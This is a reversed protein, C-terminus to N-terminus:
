FRSGFMDDMLDSYLKYLDAKKGDENTVKEVKEDKRENAAAFSFGDPYRERLKKSNTDLVDQITFKLQEGLTSVAEMWYYQIDGLEKVIKERPVETGHFLAKKMLDVFEGVEGSLGFANNILRDKFNLQPNRTRKAEDAFSEYTWKKTDVPTKPLEEDLVKKFGKVFDLLEHQEVVISPYGSEPFLLCSGAAVEEDFVVKQSLSYDRLAPCFRSILPKVLFNPVDIYFPTKAAMSLSLTNKFLELTQHKTM